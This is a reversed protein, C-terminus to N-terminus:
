GAPNLPPLASASPHRSSRERRAATLARSLADWAAGSKDPGADAGDAYRSKGLAILAAQVAPDARPDPGRVRGAWLDLAPRLGARDRRGLAHRLERWAHGESARRAARRAQIGRRIPPLLRRLLAAVLALGVLGGLAVLGILRWDRPAASTAPPGEVTLSIGETTATEVAGTDLNFWDLTVGPLAGGGGGEAVFTIRETRTGGLQGRTETEEVVPEDPYAALGTLDPVALLDPLFIPSVGEVRAVLTLTVSDGPTMADTDGGETTAQLSLARAAIFPELGRAAEPVVGAFQVPDTRLTTRIKDGGEPDSWTVVLDQAPLTFDGERMPSILYRRSVGSWTEGGIRESTALTSKEPLRVLLDPSDFVPWVPPDPLFTPVLVTLRLSIPQGPITEAENREMRLQPAPATDQAGAPGSALLALVLALIVRRM